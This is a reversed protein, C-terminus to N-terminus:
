KKDLFLYLLMFRLQIKIPNLATTSGTDGKKQQATYTSNAFLAKQSVYQDFITSSM